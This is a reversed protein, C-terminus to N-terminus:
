PNEFLSLILDKCIIIEPSKTCWFSGLIGSGGVANSYIQIPANFGSNEDPKYNYKQVNYLAENM